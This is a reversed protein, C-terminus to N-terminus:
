PYSILGMLNLATMLDALTSSVTLAPRIPTAGNVGIPGSTTMAGDAAIRFREANNTGIRFYGNEYNWLEANVGIQGLSVGDGGASGTTSNWLQLYVETTNSSVNLKRNITAALSSIALVRNNGSDLLSPGASDIQVRSTASTAGYWSGWPGAITINGSLTVDGAHNVSFRSALGQEVVDIALNSTPGSTRNRIRLLAANYSGSRELELATWATGLSGLQYTANAGPQFAFSNWQAVRNAAQFLEGGGSTFRVSGETTAARGVYDTQVNGTARIAGIVHLPVAPASTGIGVNGGSPQLLVFDRNDSTSITPSFGLGTGVATSSFAQRGGLRYETANVTGAVDLTWQPLTTMAIGVRGSSAFASDAHLMIPDRADRTNISIGWGFGSGIARQKISWWETASGSRRGSIMSAGDTVGDHRAIITGYVDVPSAPVGGFGVNGTFTEGARNAATYGLSAQAGLTTRAAAADVQTLLSRGFAQTALAAIATLDADLPQLAALAGALGSVDGIAHSHVANAPTYGLAAAIAAANVTPFDNLGLQWEDGSGSVIVPVKGVAAGSSPARLSLNGNGIASAPGFTKM